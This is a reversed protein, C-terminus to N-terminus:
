RFLIYYTYTVYLLLIYTVIYVAKNLEDLILFPIKPQFPRLGFDMNQALLVQLWSVACLTFNSFYLLDAIVVCCKTTERKM